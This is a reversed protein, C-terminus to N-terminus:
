SLLQHGNGALIKSDNKEYFMSESNFLYELGQGIWCWETDIIICIEAALQGM